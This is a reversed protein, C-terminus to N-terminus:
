RGDLVSKLLNAVAAVSQPDSAWTLFLQRYRASIRPLVERLFKGRRGSILDQAAGKNEALWVSYNQQEALNAVIQDLIWPGLVSSFLHYGQTAHMLLGRQELRAATLEARSFLRCLDELSIGAARTAHRELLATATLVIKEHDDSHRWYDMMHPVAEGEFRRVLFAQRDATDLGRRYGEYLAWCAVQIFYPHLGALDLVLQIEEELFRMGSEGLSIALMAQFDALSFMGLHIKVFINFFASARIEESYCIESLEFRSSTVLAVNRRSALSRFGSYFDPGFRENSTVCDFEDLLFVVSHGHDGMKKFFGDLDFTDFHEKRRLNELDNLVVPSYCEQSLLELLRRWLQASGMGEDVMQLDVYIFSYRSPHFSHAERVDPDILYNLLSTKGIRREGVVSSSEFGANGLRGFIEEAEQARGFFRLPDSVPNGFTFPNGQM